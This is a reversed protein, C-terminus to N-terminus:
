IHKMCVNFFKHVFICSLIRMGLIATFSAVWAEPLRSDLSGSILHNKLVMKEYSAVSYIKNQIIKWLLSSILTMALIHRRFDNVLDRSVAKM